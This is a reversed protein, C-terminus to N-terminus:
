AIWILIQCRAEDRFEMAEQIAFIGRYETLASVNKYCLFLYSSTWLDWSSGRGRDRAMSDQQDDYRRLGQDSGKM